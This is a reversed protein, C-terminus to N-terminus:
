AGRRRRAGAVRRRHRVADQRRHAAHPAIMEQAVDLTAGDTWGSACAIRTRRGDDVRVRRHPRPSVGAADPAAAPSAVAGESTLLGEGLLMKIRELGRSKHFNQNHTVLVDRIVAPDSVIFLHEGGMRLYALDGYKRALNSFFELPNRGPRYTFTSLLSTKPGPPSTRTASSPSTRCTGTSSPM